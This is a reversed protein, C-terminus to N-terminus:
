AITVSADLKSTLPGGPYTMRDSIARIRSIGLQYGAAYPTQAAGMNLNFVDQTILMGFLYVSPFNTIVWNIDTPNVLAAVKAFYLLTYGYTSDPSPGLQLNTGIVTFGGPVDTNGQNFTNLLGDPTYYDPTVIANSGNVFSFAKIGLFDAPLVVNNGVNPLVGFSGTVTKLQQNVGGKAGARPPTMLDGNIMEETMQVFVGIQGDSLSSDWESFTRLQTLLDARTAITM